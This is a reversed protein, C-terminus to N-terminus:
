GDAGRNRNPGRMASRDIRRIPAVRDPARLQEDVFDAVAAVTSSEFLRALPLEVGFRTQIADIVGTGLLSHGGLAFFDQNVGVQEVELVSAWIEAVVRETDTRPPIPRATLEAAASPLPAPLRDTEIAGAPTLPWHRVATISGPLLSDPLRDRLQRHIRPIATRALRAVAPENSFVGTLDPCEVREPSIREDTVTAQNAPRRGISPDLEILLGIEILLDFRFQTIENRHASLKPLVSVASVGPLRGAFAALEAPNVALEEDQEALGEALRRLEAAPTGDPLSGRLMGAYLEPLLSLDRVDLLLVRGVDGAPRSSGGRVLEVAEALVTRLYQGDPFFQSIPILVTDPPPGDLEALGALGDAAHQCLRVEPHERRLQAIGRESPEVARYSACHPALAALLAGSGCGIQLVHEPRQQRIREVTGALWDRMQEAPVYEGTYPSNWGALHADLERDAPRDAYGALFERRSQALGGDPGTLSVYGAPRGDSGPLVAAQSVSQGDLLARRVLELNRRGSPGLYELSGDPLWRAHDGTLRSPGDPQEVAVAGPVGVPVPQGYRDVLRLRVGPLVRGLMARQAQVGPRGAILPGAPGAPLYAVWLEIGPLAQSFREALRGPLGTDPCVVQRLTGPALRDIAGPERLLEDLWGSGLLCGTAATRELLALLRDARGDTLDDLVVTAGATLGRLLWGLMAADPEGSEAPWGALLVDEVTAPGLAETWRALALAAEDSTAGGLLRAAPGHGAALQGALKAFSVEERGVLLATAEPRQAAHRELLAMPDPGAHMPATPDPSPQAPSRPDSVVPRGFGTVRRREAPTILQYGAIPEDPGAIASALVSRVAEVIQGALEPSFLDTAYHLEGGLSGDPQPTFEWELDFRAMGTPITGLEVQLGPLELPPRATNHLGIMQRVLPTRSRADREPSVAEVIREFPVDQNAYGNLCTTRVAALLEAFTRARAPALRLPLTNVFCGLMPETEPENRNAIPTGVVFDSQDSWREGVVGFAALLVMFLTARAPEALRRLEATFESSYWFRVSEGAWGPATPGVRDGALELPRAGTLNETWYGLQGGLRTTLSERQWQAFDGYQLAPEPLPSPEGREFARYLQGFESMMVGLSWGDAAIHHQTLLLLHDNPALRLFVPRLMPDRALDFPRSAERRCRAALEADRDAPEMGSLDILPVPQPAPPRIVQVPEGAVMQYNTRLVEHRRVIEDLAAQVAALDLPGTLRATGAVNYLASSPELQSFFWIRQQAYSMPMAARDGTWRGIGSVRRAPMREALLRDLQARQGATLMGSM